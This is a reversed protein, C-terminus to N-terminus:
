QGYRTCSVSYASSAIASPTISCSPSGPTVDERLLLQQYEQQCRMDTCFLFNQGELLPTLTPQPPLTALRHSGPAPLSTSCRSRTRGVRRFLTLEQAQM